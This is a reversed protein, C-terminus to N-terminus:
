ELHPRPAKPATKFGNRPYRDSFHSLDELISKQNLNLLGPTSRKFGSGRVGLGLGQFRSGPLFREVYFDNLIDHIPVAM